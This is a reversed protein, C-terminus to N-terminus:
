ELSHGGTLQVQDLALKIVSYHSAKSSNLTAVEQVQQPGAEAHPSDQSLQSHPRHQNLLSESDTNSALQQNLYERQERVIRQEKNKM